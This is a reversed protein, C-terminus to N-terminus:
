RTPGSAGLASALTPTRHPKVDTPAWAPTRRVAAMAPEVALEWLAALRASTTNGIRLDRILFDRMSVQALTSTAKRDLVERLSPGGDQQLAEIMELEVCDVVELAAVGPATLLGALRCKERLELITAPNIPFGETVVLLPFFRRRGAALAATLASENERLAEITSNLQDAKEVLKDLDEDMAKADVGSVSERKLKSTTIEVVVWADGYDLASDANRRGPWAAQIEAEGYVRKAAGQLPRTIGGLVERVYVEALHQFFGKARSARRKGPKGGSAELPWTADLLPPTGFIRRLLMVPDVVLLRDEDLRVVPYREFTSIAWVLGHEAIERRVLHRLQPVPVSILELVADTREPAWGMPGFFEKSVVPPGPRTAAFWLAMGLAMLDGVEVDTVERYLGALDEYDPRDTHEQPLQLWRRVFRAFLHIEDAPANFYQNTTLHRSLSGLGQGAIMEVGDGAHTIHDGVALLAGVLNGRPVGPMLCDGSDLCALKALVLLTQPVVLGRDPPRLLNLVRELIPGAFWARAARDDVENANAGTQRYACLADAVFCLVDDLSRYALQDRIWGLPPTEGFVEEATLYVRVADLPQPLSSVPVFLGSRTTALPSGLVPVTTGTLMQAGRSVEVLARRGLAPERGAVLAYLRDM